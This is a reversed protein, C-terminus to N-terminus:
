FKISGPTPELFVCLHNKLVWRSSTVTGLWRVGTHGPCVGGMHAIYERELQPFSPIGPCTGMHKSRVGLVPLKRKSISEGM